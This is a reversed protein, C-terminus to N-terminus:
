VQNSLRQWTLHQNNWRLKAARLIQINKFKRLELLYRDGSVIYDAKGEIAWELIRNDAGNCRAVAPSNWSVKEIQSQWLLPSSTSRRARAALVFKNLLSHISIQRKTEPFTSKLPASFNPIGLLYNCALLHSHAQLVFVTLLCATLSLALQSVCATIFFSPEYALDGALGAKDLPAATRIASM